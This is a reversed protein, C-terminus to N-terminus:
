LQVQERVGWVREGFQLFQLGSSDLTDTKLLTDLHWTALTAPDCPRASSSSRCGRGIRRSPTRPCDALGARIARGNTPLRVQALGCSTVARGPRLDFEPNLRLEPLRHILRFRLSGDQWTRGIRLCRDACSRSWSM